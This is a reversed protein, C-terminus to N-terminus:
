STEVTIKKIAGDATFEVREVGKREIAESDDTAGATMTFDFSVCHDVCRFNETQWYVDVHHDFFGHMMDGIAARGRHEGATSSLYLAGASFMPMILDVRHANSLAVYARTIEILENDTM